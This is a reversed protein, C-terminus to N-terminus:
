EPVHLPRIREVPIHGVAVSTRSEATWRRGEVEFLVVNVEGAMAASPYRISEGGDQVVDATLARCEQYRIDPDPDSSTLRDWDIGAEQALEPAAVDLCWGPARIDISHVTIKLQSQLEILESHRRLYESQAGEPSTSVYLTPTAGDDFRGSSSPWPADPMFDIDNPLARYGIFHPLNTWLEPTDSDAM